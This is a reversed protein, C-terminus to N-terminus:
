KVSDLNHVGGSAGCLLMTGRIRRGEHLLTQLGPVIWSLQTTGLDEPLDNVNIYERSGDALEIVFGKLDIENSAFDRKVVTGQFLAIGANPDCPSSLGSLEVVHNGQVKYKVDARAPYSAVIIVGQASIFKKNMATGERQGPRMAFKVPRRRNCRPLAPLACEDGVDTRPRGSHAWRHLCLEVLM